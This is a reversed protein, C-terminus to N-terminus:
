RSRRSSSITLRLAQRGRAAGGLEFRYGLLECVHRLYGPGPIPRSEGSGNAEVFISEAVRGPIDEGEFTVAVSVTDEGSEGGVSITGDGSDRLALLLMSRLIVSLWRPDAESVTGLGDANLDLRRNPAVASLERVNDRVLGAMNVAQRAPPSHGCELCSLRILDDHMRGLGAVVRRMHDAAQRLPESDAHRSFIQSLLELSQIPQRLDHSAQDWFERHGHDKEDSSLRRTVM